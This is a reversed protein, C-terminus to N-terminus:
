RPCPDPGMPCPGWGPSPRWFRPGAPAPGSSSREGALLPLTCMKAVVERASNAHLSCMGPLSFQARDVPRPVGGAAGRRGRDALAAAAARGERPPPAPDRRRGRPKTPADADCRRRAAARPSSDPWRGCTPSTRSGGSTRSPRPPGARDILDPHRPATKDRTTTVTRRHGRRVGDLGAIGMLRGVQDRGWPHGARRAAHWLKRVGYLGRHARYLNVLTDAAYADALEAASVPVKLRAYYTIPAIPM